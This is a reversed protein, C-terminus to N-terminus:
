SASNGLVPTEIEIFDNKYYFERVSKVFKSRLLFRDYAEDDSILQL